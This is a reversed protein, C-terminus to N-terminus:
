AESESLDAETMEEVGAGNGCWRCEVGEVQDDLVEEDEIALDGALTFHHFAKTRRTTTVTFRTVNGCSACRYRTTSM